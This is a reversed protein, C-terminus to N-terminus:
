RARRDIADAILPVFAVLGHDGGDIADFESGDALRGSAKWRQWVAAVTAFPVLEDRRGMLVTVPTRPADRDAEVRAMEEFFARHITRHRTSGYHFFTLPDGPPLKASWRAGFGLAPAILVLPADVGRAVLELALMAGLSSGAIV